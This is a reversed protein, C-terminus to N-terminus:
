LSIAKGMTTKVYVSKIRDKEIKQEIADLVAIANEALDEANMDEVGIVAHITPTKKSQIRVTNRLRTLIGELPAKPPLPQPMKGRPGLVIGWNKGIIPMLEPQAIFHECANAFERMKRRDKAYELIERKDLVYNSVKKANIMVEGDAFIGIDVAKGRGKPLVVSLNIKNEAKEMSINKFNIGIEVSQKFNRKKGGELMEKIEKTIKAKNM